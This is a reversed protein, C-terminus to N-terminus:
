RFPNEAGIETKATKLGPYKKECKEVVWNLIARYDDKYRKGNAVKYNDLEEILKQTFAEGYKEVLKEYEAPLMSVAEAYKTKKPAPPKPKKPPEAEDPPPEIAKVEPVHEERRKDRESRKRLRDKEKKDLYSYWYQQWEYWDHIYLKGDEEDIWGASIMADAVTSANLSPNIYPRIASAIDEKDANGLLGSVDANKRAWLWLVTLIGLAEADSCGIAKRFGRLKSGLVEEHVAIWHLLDGEKM